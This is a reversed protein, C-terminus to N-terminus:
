IQGVPHDDGANGAIEVRRLGRRPVIMHPLKIASALGLGSLLRIFHWGLDLQGPEIGLRASEPFAHHNGHFSEGFTVLGFHPLNYGQVAVDDVSWGQHGNRHAFHGVLWHGTLSVSVRVAIGWVVWPLGGLTFLLLALPLQQAMWTAELFRYFRDRRERADLVFRPPHDLAVACHMQWFADTFFPRRHAYLDHCDRQRQAWDRIDHAYIMGFPGAMGVLTGLYVLTHEIWLPTSFSRHILLRHMGVSHGLCITIATLLIFIAFASWTFTLPGGIIATLTMASIWVSKAPMWVVRGKVPDSSDDIMRGTSISSM